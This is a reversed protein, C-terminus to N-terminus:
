GNGAQRRKLELGAVSSVIREIDKDPLPPTCRTANFSRILELAVFPDVRRRLLYGSLKTLSCDRAGENIGQVLTRWESPPKSGNGTSNSPAVKTLLWAPAEAIANACDVSWEYRRGSPHISPPAIVFGGTGRVDVGPAIRGTSNRVDATPMRFYVHRGRATIAEVTPPLAGHEAELKRLEAEADIGDVDVVFIGSPIGTAIGVNAEPLQQWWQRITTEDVTAAKLGTAVAPHKGRPVCPFVHLGKRALTLASRIV